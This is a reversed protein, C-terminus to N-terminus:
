ENMPISSGSFELKDRSLGLLDGINAPFVFCGIPTSTTLPHSPEMKVVGGVGMLGESAPFFGPFISATKKKKTCKMVSYRWGSTYISVRAAEWMARMDRSIIVLHGLELDWQGSARMGCGSIWIVRNGELLAKM